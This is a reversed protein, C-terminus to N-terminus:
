FIKLSLPIFLVNPGRETKEHSLYNVLVQTHFGFPKGLSILLVLSMLINDVLLLELGM